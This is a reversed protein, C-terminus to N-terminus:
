RTLNMVSSMSTRDTVLKVAKSTGSQSDTVIFGLSNDETIFRVRHGDPTTSGSYYNSSLEKFGDVTEIIMISQYADNIDRWSINWAGGSRYINGNNSYDNLTLQFVEKGDRWIIATTEPYLGSSGYSMFGWSQSGASDSSSSVYDYIPEQVISQTSVDMLGYKGNEKFPIILEEKSLFIEANSASIAMGEPLLMGSKASILAGEYGLKENTGITHEDGIVGYVYEYVYREEPVNFSRSQDAAQEEINEESAQPTEIGAESMEQDLSGQEQDVGEELSISPNELESEGQEGLAPENDNSGAEVSVAERNEADGGVVAFAESIGQMGSAGLLSMSLLIALVIRLSKRSSYEM